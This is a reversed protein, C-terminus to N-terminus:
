RSGTNPSVGPARSCPKSSFSMKWVHKGQLLFAPETAFARITVDRKKLHYWKDARVAKGNARYRVGDRAEVKFLDGARGCKELFRVNAKVVLVEAPLVEPVPVIEPAPPPSAQCAVNSDVPAAITLTNLGTPFVYGAPLTFTLSGDVNLVSAWPGVPITTFAANGPGCDDKVTVEPAPVQTVACDQSFSSASVTGYNNARQSNTWYGSLYMSVTDTPRTTITETFLRSQYGTLVTGVPVVGPRTSSTISESIRESNSVRWTVLWGGGEKCAVSGTITNHHASSPGAMGVVAFSVVILLTVARAMTRTHRGFERGLSSLGQTVHM